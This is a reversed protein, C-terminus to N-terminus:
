DSQEQENRHGDICGLNLVDNKIAVLATRNRELKGRVLIQRREVLLVIGLRLLKREAERRRRESETFPSEIDIGRAFEHLRHPHVLFREASCIEQFDVKGNTRRDIRVLVLNREVLRVKHQLKRALAALGPRKGLQEGFLLLRRLLSCEFFLLAGGFLLLGCFLLRFM